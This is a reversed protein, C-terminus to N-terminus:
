GWGIYRSLCGVHESYSIWRIKINFLEALSDVEPKRFPEHQHVFRILYEMRKESFAWHNESQWLKSHAWLIDSIYILILSLQKPIADFRCKAFM